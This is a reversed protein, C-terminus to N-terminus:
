QSPKNAHRHGWKIFPNEFWRWSYKAVFLLLFPLTLYRVWAENVLFSDLWFYSLVGGLLNNFLHQFLYIFYSYRGFQRLLANSWFQTIWSAPTTAILLLTTMYFAAIATYGVSVIVRGGPRADIAIFLIMSLTLAFFGVLWRGRHQDLSRRARSDRLIAAALIGFGLADARCFPIFHTSLMLEEDAILMLLLRSSIGVIIFIWGASLPSRIRIIALPAILYFQEEIGLSWLDSLIGLVSRDIPPQFVILWNPIFLYCGLWDVMTLDSRLESTPLFNLNWCVWTVAIFLYALPFIRAFRRLYFSRYIEASNRRDMLGGGILFGSIVFFLDVGSFSLISIRHLYALFTQFEDALTPPLFHGHLVLIVAFGRLGDLWQLRSSGLKTSQSDPLSSTVRLEHNM